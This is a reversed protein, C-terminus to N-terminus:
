IVQILQGNTHCGYGFGTLDLHGLRLVLGLGSDVLHGARDDLLDLLHDLGVSGEGLHHLGDDLLGVGVNCLSLADSQGSEGATNDASGSLQGGATNANGSHGNDGTGDDLPGEDATEAEGLAVSQGSLSAEVVTTQDAGTGVSGTKVGTQDAGTGVSGTKVGTEDAGSGVSGTEVGAEDAGLSVTQSAGSGKTVSVSITQRKVAQATEGCVSGGGSDGSVLCRDMREFVRLGKGVVRECCVVRM